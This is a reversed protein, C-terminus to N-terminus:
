RVEGVDFRLGGIVAATFLVVLLFILVSAASGYGVDQFDVMQQRAYVSVSATAISNSTMVYIQDFVRLAAVTRFVLGVAIAPKLLPLTVSFFTRVPGAGDVRAAEYVDDPISQLGALLILTMFPTTKWVDTLIVATM